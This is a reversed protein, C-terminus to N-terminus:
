GEGERPNPETSKHPHETPLNATLGWKHAFYGEMRVRESSSLAKNFIVFEPIHGSFKHTGGTKSGLFMDGAITGVTGSSRLSTSETTAGDVTLHAAGGAFDLVLMGLKSQGTTCTVTGVDATASDNVARRLDLARIRNSADRSIEIMGTAGTTRLHFINGTTGANDPRIVFGLSMGSLNSMISGGGESLFLDQTGSFKMSHLDNFGQEDFSPGTFTGDRAWLYYDNDSSDELLPIKNGHYAGSAANSKWWCALQPIKRPTWADIEVRRVARVRKTDARVATRGQLGNSFSQYWAYGAYTRDDRLVHTSSWYDSATFGQDSTVGRFLSVSTQAPSSSTYSAGRPSSHFNIGMGTVGGFMNDQLEDSYHLYTLETVAARNTTSNSTTTPKLNRYCLELEDRAPVYWDEYGNATLSACHKSAASVIALSDVTTGDYSCAYMTSLEGETLTPMYDWVNQQFTDVSASTTTIETSKPSVIM